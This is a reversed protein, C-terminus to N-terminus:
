IIAGKHSRVQIINRMREDTLGLENNDGDVYALEKEHFIALVLKRDKQVDNHTIPADKQQEKEMEPVTSVGFALPQGFSHFISGAFVFIVSICARCSDTVSVPIKSEKVIM